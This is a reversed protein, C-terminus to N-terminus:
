HDQLRRPLWVGSQPSELMGVLDHRVKIMPISDTNLLDWYMNVSLNVIFIFRCLMKNMEFSECSRESQPFGIYDLTLNM